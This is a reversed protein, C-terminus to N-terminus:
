QVQVAGHAASAKINARSVVPERDAPRSTVRLKGDVGAEDVASQM